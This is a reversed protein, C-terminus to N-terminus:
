TVSPHKHLIRSLNMGHGDHILLRVFSSPVAGSSCYAYPEVAERLVRLAARRLWASGPITYASHLMRPPWSISGATTQVAPHQFFRLKLSKM